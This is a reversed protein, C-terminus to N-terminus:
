EILTEIKSFTITKSVISTEKVIWESDYEIESQFLRHTHNILDYVIKGKGGGYFKIGLNNPVKMKIKQDFTFIAFGSEITDLRYYNTVEALLSIGTVIQFNSETSQQFTYGMGLKKDPYINQNYFQETSLAISEKLEENSTGSISDVVVNLDKDGTAFIEIGILLNEISDGESSNVDLIESIMKFRENKQLEFTQMKSAILTTSTRVTPSTLGDENLSEIFERSGTYSTTLTTANEITTKYSTNPKLQSKFLLKQSHASCIPIGAPEAM